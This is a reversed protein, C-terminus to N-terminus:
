DLKPVKEDQKMKLGVGGMCHMPGNRDVKTQKPQNNGQSAIM